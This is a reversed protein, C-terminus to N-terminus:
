ESDDGDRLNYGEAAAGGQATGNVVLRYGSGLITEGHGNEDCFDALAGQLADYEESIRDTVSPLYNCFFVSQNYLANYAIDFATSSSCLCKPTSCDLTIALGPYTEWQLPRKTPGCESHDEEHRCSNLAFKSCPPLGTYSSPKIQLVPPRSSATTTPPPHTSTSQSPITKVVSPPSPIVIVPSTTTTTTPAPKCIEDFSSLAKDTINRDQCGETTCNTIFTYGMLFNDGNSSESCVCSYTTCNTVSTVNLLCNQACDPLEKYQTTTKVITWPDGPAICTIPMICLSFVILLTPMWRTGKLQM